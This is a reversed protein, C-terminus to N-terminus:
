DNYTSIVEIFTEMAGALLIEDRYVTNNVLGFGTKEGLCPSQYCVSSDASSPQVHNLVQTINYGNEHAFVKIFDSPFLFLQRMLYKVDEEDRVYKMIDGFREKGNIKRFQAFLDDSLEDIKEELYKRFKYHNLTNNSAVYHNLIGRPAPELQSFNLGVQSELMTPLRTLIDRATTHPNRLDALLHNSLKSDSKIADKIQFSTDSRRFRHNWLDDLSLTQYESTNVINASVNYEEQCDCYVGNSCTGNSWCGYMDCLVECSIQCAPNGFLICSLQPRLTDATSPPFIRKSVNDSNQTAGLVASLLQIFASTVYYRRETRTLLVM